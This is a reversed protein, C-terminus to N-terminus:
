AAVGDAVRIRGSMLLPILEDRTSTLEAIETVLSTIADRIPEGFANFAAIEESGPVTLWSGAIVKANMNKQVSGTMASQSYDAYLASKLYGFLFLGLSPDSPTVKVLYSAFVADVDSEVRACKGPDAMRAVVLDGKRLRYKDGERAEASCHPVTDWEVWNRKNIDAVRLFKPGSPETTAADTFGYQTSCLDSLQVSPVAAVSAFRRAWEAHFLADLDRILGRNVEILDDLAGLVGAIRRQEDLPPLRFSFSSMLRANLNPQVSGTKVANVYDWWEPSQLVYKLFRPLVRDTDPRLRVLYSAFVAHRNGEILSSVGVTGMRSVLLDGDKVAYKALDTEDIECYPVQRWNMPGNAIDTTRIFHPGVPESVASATFGYQPKARCADELTLLPWPDTM